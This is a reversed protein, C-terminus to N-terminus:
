LLVNSTRVADDSSSTGACSSLGAVVLAGLVLAQVVVSDTAASGQTWPARAVLVGAGVVAGAALVPDTWAPPLRRCVLVLGSAVAWAVLGTWGSVLLSFGLSAIASTMLGMARGDLAARSRVDVTGRHGRSRTAFLAVALLFLALPGTALGRRYADDSEFRAHVVAAPGAGVVWGQQWGNLRVAELSRGSGDVASWGENFNQPLVVVGRESRAPLLIDATAPDPRGVNLTSPPAALRGQFVEADALSLTLPAFESTARVTVVQHGAPLRIRAGGVSCPTLTVPEHRFVAGVTTSVSTLVDRGGFSITPAFGCPVVVRRDPEVAKRQDDAGLVRVESVGVPRESRFGSVADIDVLPREDVFEVAIVRARAPRLPVRGDPEVTVQTMPANDLRVRVVRPRSAALYGDSFLQLGSVTRASPLTLTLTPRTDTSAAVWGTGLDRDVAAGPRGEAATVERSTATAAISGPVALLRELPRGDRPLVSATLAFTTSATTEFGRVM